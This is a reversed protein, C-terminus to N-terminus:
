RNRVAAGVITTDEALADVLLAAAAPAQEFRLTVTVGFGAAVHLSPTPLRHQALLVWARSLWAEAEHMTALTRVIVAGDRM